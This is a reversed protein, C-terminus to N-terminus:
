EVMMWSKALDRGNQIKQENTLSKKDLHNKQLTFFKKNNLERTEIRKRTLKTQRLRKVVQDLPHHVKGVTAIEFNAQNIFKRNSKSM